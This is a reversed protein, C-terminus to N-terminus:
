GVLELKGISWLESLFSLVQGNPLTLKRRLCYHHMMSNTNRSEPWNKHHDLIGCHFTYLKRLTHVRHSSESKGESTVTPTCGQM